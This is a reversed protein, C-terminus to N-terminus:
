RRFFPYRGMRGYNVVRARLGESSQTIYVTAKRCYSVHGQNKRHTPMMLYFIGEYRVLMIALQEIAEVSSVNDEPVSSPRNVFLFIKKKIYPRVEKPFRRYGDQSMPQKEWFWVRVPDGPKRKSVYIQMRGNKKRYRHKRDSRRKRKKKDKAGKTRM